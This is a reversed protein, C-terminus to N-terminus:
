KKSDLKEEILTLIKKLQELYDEDLVISDMLEMYEKLKNKSDKTIERIEKLTLIHPEIGSISSDIINRIVIFEAPQTYLQNGNTKDKVLAQITVIGTMSTGETNLYIEARGNEPHTIIVKGNEENLEYIEGDQRKVFLSVNCNRLPVKPVHIDNVNTISLDIVITDGIFFQKQIKKAEVNGIDLSLKLSKYINSM